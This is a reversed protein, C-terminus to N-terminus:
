PILQMSRSVITLDGDHSPAASLPRANLLFAGEVPLGYNVDVVYVQLPKGVRLTFAIEVGEPPTTLCRYVNWDGFFFRRKEATGEIPEGQMNVKSVGSNPPFLALVEPAGRESRLLARYSRETGTSASELITFSPASIALRPAPTLYAPGRDWPFPGKDAHKFAAAVRVAEPLRGSDPEVIWQAVGTDADNWYQINMREPSKASFQPAAVAVFTALLVAAIPIWSFMAGRMGTTNWIDASLPLMPTLALAVLVAIFPLARNGMGDYLMLLPAFAVVGAIAAPLIAAVDTFKDDAPVKMQVPRRLTAPLAILPAIGAPVLFIYSIGSALWSVVFSLLAWWAWVGAWLGWFGARRGFLISLNFVVATGLSWFALEVPFPHAVWDVLIASGFRMIGRLIFALSATAAMIALWLILGWLLERAALRKNWLLWTIQPALLLITMLAFPIAWSAPFGVMGLQFVDFYVAEGEPVRSFDASALAVVSSLANDGQHQLSALSLNALNDLPTHYHPEDGIFAFNLGRYGAAKFVSFDTDNPLQKYVTYFISSTAPHSASKAYLRAAWANASGTEFMISPGSTGRAELNVVARVSRAWPHKEVFARAGLLGGEEGDDILFVISHQPTPLSKLARAAELVAAAGTGDDSVGPGALVSDYHAAILVAPSDGAGSRASAGAADRGNLRAVVNAVTACSGYESCSFATQVSPKYGLRNLEDVIRKRVADNAPSGVPHPIQDDIIRKLVEVAREASFQTNPSTHGKPKPPRLGAVSLLFIVALIAVSLLIRRIGPEGKQSVDGGGGPTM